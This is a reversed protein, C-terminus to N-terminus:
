GHGDVGPWHLHQETAQKISGAIATSFVSTGSQSAWSFMGVQCTPM